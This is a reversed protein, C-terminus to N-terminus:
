IAKIKTSKRTSTVVFSQSIIQKVACVIGLATLEVLRSWYLKHSVWNATLDDIREDTRRDTGENNIM